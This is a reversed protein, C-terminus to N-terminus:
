LGAKRLVKRLRIGTWGALVTKLLDTGLFPLVCATLSTRISNGTCFSYMFIGLIYCVLNAALLGAVFGKKGGHEAGYGAIWAMLPCSLLFGGTPGALRSLGAGFNSFVPVGLAGLLIYASLSAFGRRSGLVAGALLVAMTQMTLPVGGPLPISIQALM